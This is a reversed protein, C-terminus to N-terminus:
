IYFDITAIIHYFYHLHYIINYTAHPFAILFKSYELYKESDYEKVLQSEVIFSFMLYKIYLYLNWKCWHYPEIVDNNLLISKYIVELVTISSLHVPM